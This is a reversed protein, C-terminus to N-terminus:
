NPYYRDFIHCRNFVKSKGNELRAAMIETFKDITKIQQGGRVYKREEWKKEVTTKRKKRKMKGDGNAQRTKTVIKVPSLFMVVVAFPLNGLPMLHLNERLRCVSLCVTRYEKVRWGNWGCFFSTLADFQLHEWTLHVFCRQRQAIRDSIFQPSTNNIRQVICHDHLSQFVSTSREVSRRKALLVTIAHIWADQSQHLMAPSLFGRVSRWKM